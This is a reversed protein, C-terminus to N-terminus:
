RPPPHGHPIRPHVAHALVEPGHGARARPPQRGGGGAMAPADLCLAQTVREFEELRDGRRLRAPRNRPRERPNLAHEAFAAIRGGRQTKELLEVHRRILSSEPPAPAPRDVAKGRLFALPQQAREALRLELAVRSAHRDDQSWAVHSAVAAQGAQRYHTAWGEWRGGFWSRCTTM